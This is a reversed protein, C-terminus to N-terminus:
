YTTLDIFYNDRLTLAILILYFGVYGKGYRIM